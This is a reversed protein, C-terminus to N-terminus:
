CLVVGGTGKAFVRGQIVGGRPFGAGPKQNIDLQYLFNIRPSSSSPNTLFSCSRFLNAYSLLMCQQECQLVPSLIHM